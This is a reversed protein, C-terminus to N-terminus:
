SGNAQKYIEAFTESDTAAIHALVKRDLIINQEKLGHIFSSYSGGLVKCAASIRTIWLRRLERKKNRRDRYAYMNAKDATQKMTKYLKRRSGRFGKTSRALDKRRQNRAKHPVSRPM